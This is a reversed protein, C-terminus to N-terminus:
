EHDRRQAHRKPGVKFRAGWVEVNILHSQPDEKTIVQYFGGLASYASMGEVRHSAVLTGTTPDIVEIVTALLDPAPRRVPERSKVQRGHVWLLGDEDEWLGRIMSRSGGTSPRGTENLTYAPFWDAEREFVALLNGERDWREIRYRYPDAVWFAGDRSSGFYAPPPSSQTPSLGATGGFSRVLQGSPDFLHFPHGVGERTRNTGSILYSGDGFVLPPVPSGLNPFPTTSLTEFTTKSLHTVRTLMPDFILYAGPLEHIHFIREYEGPGEGTRGIRHVISGDNEASFLQNQLMPGAIALFTGDSNVHPTGVDVLAWLFLGIM